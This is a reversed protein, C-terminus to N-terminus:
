IFESPSQIKGKRGALAQFPAKRGNEKHKLLKDCQLLSDATDALVCKEVVKASGRSKM